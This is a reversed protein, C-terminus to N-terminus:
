KRGLFTEPQSSSVRSSTRSSVKVVMVEASRVSSMEFGATAAIAFAAAAAEEEDDDDDDDDDNDEGAVPSGEFTELRPRPVASIRLAM